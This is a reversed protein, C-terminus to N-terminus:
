CLCCLCCLLVLLSRVPNGFVACHDLCAPNWIGNPAKVQAVSKRMREGYYKLYPQLKLFSAPNKASPIKVGLEGFIQPPRRRHHDAVPPLSDRICM